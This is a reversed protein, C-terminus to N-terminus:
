HTSCSITIARPSTQEVSGCATVDKLFYRAGHAPEEASCYQDNLTRERKVAALYRDLADASPLRATVNLDWDTWREYHLTEIVADNPLPTPLHASTFARAQAPSDFDSLDRSTGLTCWRSIVVLAGLSLLVGGLALLLWPLAKALSFPTKTRSNQVM